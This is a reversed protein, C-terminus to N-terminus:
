HLTAVALAVALLQETSLPSENPKMTPIKADAPGTPGRYREGQAAVTMDDPAFVDVPIEWGDV